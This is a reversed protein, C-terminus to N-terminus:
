NAQDQMVSELEKTNREVGLIITKQETGDATSAVVPIVQRRDPLHLRVAFTGDSQLAVPEGDVTVHAHSQAAGFIVLEADIAFRLESHSDSACGHGFRTETPRGLRRQLRDELLQQLELSAGRQSYGGSMAFIRDANAAMDSWSGNLADVSGPMPTTVANSRAISYYEGGAGSYGIECRYTKPSETIDLYWHNVGGHIAFDKVISSSGDEAVKLLRLVPSAGHWAQGLATRAREVSTAQVDWQAQLWYADRVMLVLRDTAAKGNRPSKGQETALNKQAALRSKLEDIRAMAKRRAANPKQSSSGGRKQAATSAADRGKPPAKSGVTKTASRSGRRALKALAAVLEEKRM